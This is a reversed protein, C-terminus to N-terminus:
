TQFLPNPGGMRWNEIAFGAVGVVRAGVSASTLSDAYELSEVRCLQECDLSRGSEQNFPFLFLCTARRVSDIQVIAQINVITAALSVSETREFWEQPSKVHGRPSLLM